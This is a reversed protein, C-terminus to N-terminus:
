SQLRQAPCPSRRGDVADAGLLARPMRPRRRPVCPAPPPPAGGTAPPPAGGSDDVNLAVWATLSNDTAYVTDSGAGNQCGCQGIGEHGAASLGSCGCGHCGGGSPSCCVAGTGGSAYADACCTGGDPSCKDVDDPPTPPTSPPKGRRRSTSRASGTPPRTPNRGASYATPKPTRRATRIRM